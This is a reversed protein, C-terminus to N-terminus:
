FLPIARYVYERVGTKSGFALVTANDLDHYDVVGKTMRTILHNANRKLASNMHIYHSILTEIV